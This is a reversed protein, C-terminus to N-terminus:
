SANPTIPVVKLSSSQFVFIKKSLTTGILGFAHYEGGGRVMGVFGVVFGPVYKQMEGAHM